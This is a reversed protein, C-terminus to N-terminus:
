SPSSSALFPDSADSPSRLAVQRSALIRRPLVRACHHLASWTHLSQKWDAATLRGSREPKQLVYRPTQAQKEIRFVAADPALALLPVEIARFVMATSEDGERAPFPAAVTATGVLALSLALSVVLRGLARSRLKRCIM